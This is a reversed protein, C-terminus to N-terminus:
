SGAAAFESRVWDYGKAELEEALAMDGSKVIRGDVMIHVFEPRLYQLIRQYHTIVLVGMEPGLLSNVGKAVVKIADIDLGSDIEDLLAIRPRLLLMQLIENRKKEGGSFGENLYRNAFKSDMELLQMAQDLRDRFEKLPIPQNEPRRANIATRLFNATTVGSVESPYQMALFLGAQAREHTKLALLDQGDLTVSGGIVQYRPHGMLTQALSTKGTGNPGMVAHVEGGRVTLSVGNLIPKGDVAVKLDRIELVPSAM